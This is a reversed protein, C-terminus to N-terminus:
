SFQRLLKVLAFKEEFLMMDIMHHVTYRDIEEETIEHMDTLEDIVLSAHKYWDKEGSKLSQRIKITELKRMMEQILVSHDIAVAEVAEKKEKPPSKKKGVVKSSSESEVYLSAPPVVRKLEKPLAMQIGSRKYEVPVSRELISSNTDGIESPQFAYIEGKNILYGLRGYRDTLYENRNRVFETLVYYIQELPYEKVININM